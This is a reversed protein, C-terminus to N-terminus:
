LKIDGNYIADKVNYLDEKKKILSKASKQRSKLVIFKFEVRM